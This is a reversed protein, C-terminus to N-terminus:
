RKDVHEWKWSEYGNDGATQLSYVDTITCSQEKVTVTTKIVLQKPRTGTEDPTWYLSIGTLAIEGAIGASDMQFTRVANDKNHITEGPEEYYPWSGDTINQKVYHWLSVSYFNEARATDEELRSEYMYASGSLQNELEESLSVALIRSQEAAATKGATKMLVSATLFLGLSLVMIIAMVCVVVITTVGANKKDM